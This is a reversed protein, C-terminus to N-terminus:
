NWSNLFYYSKENPKDNVKSKSNIWNQKNEFEIVNILFLTGKLRLDTTGGLCEVTCRLDINAHNFSLRFKMKERKLVNQQLVLM